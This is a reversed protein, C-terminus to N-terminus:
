SPRSKVAAIERITNLDYGGFTGDRDVSQLLIEGAGADQAARVFEAPKRKTDRTGRHTVITPGGLLRRKFDACVVVSQSGFAKAAEGVLGPLNDAVAGLSIKEVGLAFLKEMQALSTVGGGYCVPMFAESVIERIFDFQPGAGGGSAGTDLLILEDVEKRNFIRVANMPDGVYRPNGFRVTKVLRRGDLLLVPIVRPALM